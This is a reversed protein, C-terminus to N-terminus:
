VQAMPLGGHALISDPQSGHPVMRMARLRSLAAEHQQPQSQADGRSPSAGATSARGESGHTPWAAAAASLFEEDTLALMDPDSHPLSSQSPSPPADSSPALTESPQLSPQSSPAAESAAGFDGFEDDDDMCPPPLPPSPALSSQAAEEAAGFDGFEDEDELCPPPPHPQSQPAAEETVEEAAGFDGFDDADDMCPPPAPEPPSLPASAQAVHINSAGVDEFIPLAPEPQTPLSGNALAPEVKPQPSSQPDSDVNELGGDDIDVESVMRRAFSSGGTPVRLYVRPM